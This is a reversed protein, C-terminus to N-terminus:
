PMKTLGEWRVHWGKPFGPTNKKSGDYGACMMAVATLLAGNGPLYIRLRDNQYNHGNPLYTNTNVDMLLSEVAKEPSGLRTACMATMPFDWGWTNNWQWNNWIFEFTNKMVATDIKSYGPLMGLMGLVMPHDTMTTCNSYSDPASEAGLYFGDKQAPFSLKNLVDDWKKNRELGMRERWQQATSLGWRWYTLEFPPNITSAAPYREQAPILAPGLIYRGYLSDYYAYDAMFEATSFVLGAYHSLTRSDPNNRYCLEALYIYHPQQWILFSGVSSPSDNGEPDTMKPWRYGKFGQRKATNEAKGSINNYYGLSKEMLECRNWLAFHVAHWWHMELHFKGYWSNYTFGTEAPPYVSTCQIRTLYQSLIIRRELEFARPDSSGSFDVAGGSRWFKRFAQESSQATAAYDPISNEYDTESFMFSFDFEHLNRDPLLQFEHASEQIFEAAGHWSLLVHYETSDIRRKLSATNHTVALLSSQHKKPMNWNCGNDTHEGSPYPFRIRIRLLGQEILPSKVQASILDLEQHAYTIVEVPAGDITFKSIIRGTWPNLTQDVLIIEGPLVLTGDKHVFEFGVLGLHLRHPNIRFYNSAEQGRGEEWQVDYYIKRGHFDYAKLTEEFTYGHVNPFSHWGWSSQTGLPIGNEFLAPFSQLGTFDVTFSFCGNGITLSSLSDITNVHVLHRQVVSKRDIKSNQSCSLLGLLLAVAYVANIKM